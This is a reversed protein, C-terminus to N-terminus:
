MGLILFRDSVNAVDKELEKELNKLEALEENLKSIRKVVQAQCSLVEDRFDMLPKSKHLQVAKEVYPVLWGVKFHMCQLDSLTTNLYDAQSDSLSRVSTEELILVATALLELARSVMDGNRIISNEILNGHKSWINQLTKVLNSRVDLGKFKVISNDSKNSQQSTIYNSSVHHRCKTEGEEAAHELENLAATRRVRACTTSTFDMETTPEAVELESMVSLPIEMRTLRERAASTSPMEINKEALEHLNLSFLPTVGRSISGRTAFTSPAEFIQEMFVPDLEIPTPSEGDQSDPTDADSQTEEDDKTARKPM